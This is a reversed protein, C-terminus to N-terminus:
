FLTMPVIVRAVHSVGHSIEGPSVREPCYAINIMNSLAPKKSIIENLCLNTM